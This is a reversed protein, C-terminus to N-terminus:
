LFKWEFNCYLIGPEINVNSDSWFQTEGLEGLPRIPLVQHYEGEVSMIEGGTMVQIGAHRCVKPM